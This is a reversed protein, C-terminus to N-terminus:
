IFMSQRAGGYPRIPPCCSNLDPLGDGNIDYGCHGLPAITALLSILKLPLCTTQTVENKVTQGM